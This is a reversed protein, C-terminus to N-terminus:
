KKTSVCQIVNIIKDTTIGVSLNPNDIIFQPVYDIVPYLVAGEGSRTNINVSPVSKFQNSCSAPSLVDIISGNTTVVPNYACDGIQIVDGSTYGLGPREIVINTVIGVPTTSIGIDKINTEDLGEFLTTIGTLPSLENVIINLNTLCYGKGSDIIYILNVNGNSNVTAKAYAGSGYNSRDIIKVEPPYSYGRGPNTVKITLISGNSSSVIAVAKAGVGDGYIEIEPPICKYFQTGLPMPMIDSQSQPDVIRKRCDKFPTDASGFLSLLGAAADIDNGLGGLIDINNVVTAWNDTPPLTVGSFPDWSITSKCTLGDCDLFSLLQNIFNLGSTLTGAIKSIGGALWDLGSLVSSLAGDVMSALKSILAGITEEAACRPVNSSKGILGNLLNSIFDILPGFLKEFICFIINLINKAAESIPIQLPPPTVIGLEKFLSGILKFVSDRMGNITLKMISAILRAVSAIESQIDVIKNRVPDIFGLATKELRNIFKIFNQIQTTLQSILNDGCGNSKEVPPEFQTLFQLEAADDFYLQDKPIDPNGFLSGALNLTSSSSFVSSYDTGGVQGVGLDENTNFATNLVENNSTFFVSSEKPTSTPTEKIKGSKQQKTRTFQVGEALNQTSGPFPDFPNPNPVNVVAPSRHFCSMVVPQQAEEGDLFFGLVTEGGVLLPLKGFGGQAPSGEAASSLVHAWPLDDDDLENRDFSHYGIIRVKCRYAWAEKDNEEGPNQKKGDVRSNENRWVKPDAVQGIWWIFGDRGTFNSKLLSEEIM